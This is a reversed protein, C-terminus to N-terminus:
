QWQGGDLRAVGILNEGEYQTQVTIEGGSASQTMFISGDPKEDVFTNVLEDGYYIDGRNGSIKKYVIGYQEYEKLRDAITIGTEGGMEQATAEGYLMRTVGASGSESQESASQEQLYVGNISAANGEEVATEGPSEWWADVDRAAFEEESYPVIDTIEGFLSTSGDANQVDNRVTHVDVTGKENYMSYRSIENFGGDGNDMEYGDLFFRVMEGRYYLIGKEDTIGFTEYEKLLDQYSEEERILATIGTGDNEEVFTAEHRDDAMASTAFLVTVGMVLAISLGVAAISFKRMKMIATIREEIANKSFNSCLPLFGSKQEEMRILTLAYASRADRGFRRVVCEDCALELDRNFLVYMVWVLPNFWHMCFLMTALLKWIVDRRIIHVYEHELIYALARYDEWNTKKPFLIVSHRIGYSLPTTVRDSQRIEIPHKQRKGKHRALWEETWQNKVPFSMQFERYLKVYARLFYGGCLGAGLLWIIRLILDGAATEKGAEAAAFDLASAATETTMGTTQTDVEKTATSSAKEETGTATMETSGAGTGSATMETSGAEGQPLLSYVSWAFPITFPVALRLMVVGWLALFTKKPLRNLLLARVIVVVIIMVAGSFSMEWLGM